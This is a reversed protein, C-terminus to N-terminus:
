VIYIPDCGVAQISLRYVILCLTSIIEKNLAIDTILDQNVVFKQTRDNNAVIFLWSELVGGEKKLSDL